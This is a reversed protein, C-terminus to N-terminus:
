AMGYTKAPYKSDGPFVESGIHRELVDFIAADETLDFKRAFLAESAILNAADKIGYTRPRFMWNEEVWEMMRLDDSVIQGHASCHMMVTQFFGEDPIYTNRYFRKFRRVKPSNCVFECFQRSVVMWQTGIYPTAHRMLPRPIGTEFIRGMAEIYIYELRSMTEPRRVRQDLIQIFERDPNKTLYQSIYTQSKLPFDQGSLNIFHTWADSMELLRKMGRLQADVLSYGGWQARQSKILEANQFPALFDAIDRAMERGSNKDVHVVYHNSTHYIAHFLRKFQEPFRHVLIFYAIM